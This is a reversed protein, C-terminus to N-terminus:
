AGRLRAATRRLEERYDRSADTFSAMAEYDDAAARHQGCEEFVQARAELSRFRQRPSADAAVRAALM